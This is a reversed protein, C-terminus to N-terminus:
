AAASRRSHCSTQLVLYGKGERGPLGSSTPKADPGATPPTRHIPLSCLLSPSSLINVCTALPQQIYSTQPCSHVVWSVPKIAGISTSVVSYPYPPITYCRPAPPVALCGPMLLRLDQLDQVVTPTWPPLSNLPSGLDSCCPLAEFRDQRHRHLTPVSARGM